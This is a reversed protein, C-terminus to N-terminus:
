QSLWCIRVEHKWVHRRARAMAAKSPRPPPTATASSFSADALRRRRRMHMHDGHMAGSGITPLSASGRLTHPQQASADIQAASAAAYISPPFERWTTPVLLVM